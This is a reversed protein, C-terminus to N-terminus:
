GKETNECDNETDKKIKFVGVWAELKKNFTDSEEINKHIIGVEQLGNEVVM